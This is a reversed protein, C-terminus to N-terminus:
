SSLERKESLDMEENKEILSIREKREKENEGSLHDEIGKGIVTGQKTIILKCHKNPNVQTNTSFKVKKNTLM